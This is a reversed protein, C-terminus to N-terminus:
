SIGLANLKPKKECARVKVSVLVDDGKLPAMVGLSPTMEDLRPFAQAGEKTGTGGGLDKTLGVEFRQLALAVFAFIEQRAVIRGPCYTSGGGFPRYGLSRSLEKQRLFREADFSSASPGFISKNSHLQRHPILVKTGARLVKSGLYTPAVVARVSASSNSIRLVEHFLAELRPCTTLLYSIDIPTTSTTNLAPATEARITSVLSHDHLIYALM